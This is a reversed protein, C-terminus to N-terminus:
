KVEITEVHRIIIGDDSLGEIVVSYTTPFDSTYFDFSAKGDASLLLDPKWFITSRYDRITRSKAELADYKPAYFEVPSQYGLPTYIAYNLGADPNYVQGRRTTISIAGNAGRIGFIAASAGKFIDISEIENVSLDNMKFDNPMFIGDVMLLPATTMNATLEGRMVIKVSDNVVMVEVGPIGWLLEEVRLPRKKEFDERYVTFDSIKNFAFAALRAEDKKEVKKANVVVESLLILRMDEDYQARQEAKKIFDSVDASSPTAAPFLLNSKPAHKLVPFTEQHLTLALNTGRRQNKAQVFFTVSDAYDVNFSFLGNADAEAQDIIGNSSFLSVESNAVPRGGVRNTVSGSIVKEVEYGTEPLMYDGKIAKCVDYRRWGHTMMLLDLAFAAKTDDQLYYGPAEIYGKLESSLLLSSLISHLTDPAVDGDDTVAISLHGSLPIGETDTVNIKALVNERRQYASKDSSFDVDSQDDIKNFILRESLPNMQGDFLILQIVGSPFQEYPFSIFKNSHDWPAYYLVEGKYHVLLYLPKEAITPSKNIEVLFRKNQNNVILSYTKQADPLKFRREYGNQNKCNLFYAKSAEPIFDFLGMGAFVASTEIIRNGDNDVLEGTISESTGDKNLAKFAIKSKVGETLYGGEPFFCVEYDNTGNSQKSMNFQLGAENGTTQQITKLNNIRITKKFFYDDGINEMYRTYARLTYDGDAVIESLFMNGHFLGNEDQSVMVRNVLSDSSDILEIYVYQSATTSQHSFADVVYAKFWIKEGPVYMDRDTHLHIKEQHYMELQDFIIEQINDLTMTVQANTVIVNFLFFLRLLKM